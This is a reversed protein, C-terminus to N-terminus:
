ESWQERNVELSDELYSIVRNINVPPPASNNERGLLRDLLRQFRHQNISTPPLALFRSIEQPIQLRGARVLERVEEASQQNQFALTDITLDGLERALHRQFYEGEATMEIWKAWTQVRGRYIVEQQQDDSQVQPRKYISAFAIYIGLAILVTWPIAQPLVVDFIFLAADFIQVAPIILLDRVIDRLLIALAIALALAGLTALIPFARRM